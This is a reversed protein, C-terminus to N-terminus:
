VPKLRGFGPGLSEQRRPGYSLNQVICSAGPTSSRRILARSKLKAFLLDGALAHREYLMQDGYGNLLMRWDWPMRRAAARQSRISTTCNATIKNYWAARVHLDNLRNIYDMLNERVEEPPMTLRYLYLDEGKFNTRLRVVDREDAAIYIIEFQRYLGATPSYSQGRKSRTEHLLM